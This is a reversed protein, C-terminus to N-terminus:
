NGPRNPARRHTDRGTRTKRRRRSDLEQELRVQAGAMLLDLGDQFMRTVGEASLPSQQDTRVAGSGIGTAYIFMAGMLVEMNRPGFGAEELVAIVRRHLDLPMSDSANANMFAAMGPYRGVVEVVSMMLQKLRQDWRGKEPLVVEDYIEHALLLLLDRKNPVHHYTAGLAVGLKASLGRMTLGNVGVEEVIEGAAQVIQRDSLGGADGGGMPVSPLSGTSRRVTSSAPEIVKTRPVM